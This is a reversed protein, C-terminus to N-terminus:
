CGQLGALVAHHAEPGSDQRCHQQQQCQENGIRQGRRVWFGKNEKAPLTKLALTPAEAGVPECARAADEASAGTRSHGAQSEAPTDDTRDGAAGIRSRPEASAATSRLAGPPEPVCNAAHPSSSVAYVVSHCPVCGMIVHSMSCQRCASRIGTM